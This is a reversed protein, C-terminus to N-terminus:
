WPVSDLRLINWSLGSAPLVTETLRWWLYHALLAGFGTTVLVTRFPADATWSPVILMAVLVLLLPTAAEV